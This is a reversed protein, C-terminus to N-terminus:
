EIAHSNDPEGKVIIVPTGLTAQLQMKANGQNVGIELLDFSNILAVPEGTGVSTYSTQLGHITQCKLQVAIKAGSAFRSLDERTINSILNGFRDSFIIEGHLTNQDVKCAHAPRQPKLTFSDGLEELAAGNALHAAVLAFIDRGHFTNSLATRWFERRSLRVAPPPAARACFDFLGNDPGVFYHGDHFCAIAHRSTGVGPDIVAVHVTGAPFYRYHASLIFAGAAVEQPPVEHTIDILRAHPMIGLIVGKMAAVYGDANGFDTLLTIIGSSKMGQDRPPPSAVRAM